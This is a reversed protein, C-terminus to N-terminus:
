SSVSGSVLLSAVFAASGKTVKPDPSVSRGACALSPSAWKTKSRGSGLGIASILPVEPREPLARGSGRCVPKPSSAYGAYGRRRDGLQAQVWV